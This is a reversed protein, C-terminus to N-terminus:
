LGNLFDALGGIGGASSESGDKKSNSQNQHNKALMEQLASKKKSRKVNGTAPKEQTIAPNLSPIPASAPSANRSPVAPSTSLKTDPSNGDKLGKFQEGPKIEETRANGPPDLPVDIDRSNGCRGCLTRKVTKKKTYGTTGGSRKSRQRVNQIRTQSDGLYLNHGCKSCHQEQTTLQENSQLDYRSKTDAALHPSIPLLASPLSSRFRETAPEISDTSNMSYFPQTTRAAFYSALHLPEIRDRSGSLSPNM